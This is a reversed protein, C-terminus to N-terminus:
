EKVLSKFEGHIQGTHSFTASIFRLNNQEAIRGYKSMKQECRAQMPREAAEDSIRFRGDIGTM